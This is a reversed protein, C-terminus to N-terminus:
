SKLTKGVIEGIAIGSFGRLGITYVVAFIVAMLLGSALVEIGFIVPLPFRDNSVNAGIPLHIMNSM